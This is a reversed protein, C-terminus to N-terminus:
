NISNQTCFRVKQASIFNEIQKQLDEKPDSAESDNRQSTDKSEKSEDTFRSSSDTTTRDESNQKDQKRSQTEIVM